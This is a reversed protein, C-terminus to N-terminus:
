VTPNLQRVARSREVAGMSLDLPLQLPQQARLSLDLIDVNEVAGTIPNSRVLIGPQVEDTVQEVYRRVLDLSLEDSIPDYRVSLSQSEM